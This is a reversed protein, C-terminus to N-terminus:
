RGSGGKRRDAGRRVPGPGKQKTAKRKVAKEVSYKAEPNELDSVLYSGQSDWEEKTPMLGKYSPIDFFGKEAMPKRANLFDKMCASEFRSSYDVFNIIYFKRSEGEIIDGTSNATCSPLEVEKYGYRMYIRTLLGYALSGAKDILRELLTQDEREHRYKTVFANRLSILGDLILSEVCFLKVAMKEKQRDPDATFITQAVNVLNSSLSGSRQEDAIFKFFNTHWINALHGGLKLSYDMLDNKPNARDDKATFAQNTVMNGQEKGFETAVAVMPGSGDKYLNNPDMKKGLRLMDYVLIRSFSSVKWMDKVKRSFYNSDWLVLHGKDLRLDDTRIPYNSAILNGPQFYIWYSEAYIAMAEMLGIENAGDIFSVKEKNVDYGYLVLPKKSGIEYLRYAFAAAQNINLIRRRLSLRAIDKEFPAWPFEPFMMQVRQMNDLANKHYVTNLIRAFATALTTKGGRMKGLILTFVGTDNQVMEEDEPILKEEIKKRALHFSWWRLIGWYVITRIPFPFLLLGAYITLICGILTDPLSLLDFICFFYFYEGILDLAVMPLGLAFAFSVIAASLYFRNERMWPWLQAFYGKIAKWPKKEWKDSIGRFFSKERWDKRSESLYLTTLIFVLLVGLVGIMLVRSVSMLLNTLDSTWDLLNGKSVLLRLYILFDNWFAEFDIMQLLAPYNEILDMEPLIYVSSTEEGIYFLAVGKMREGFTFLSVLFRDLVWTQKFAIALFASALVLIGVAHNIIKHAAKTKEM